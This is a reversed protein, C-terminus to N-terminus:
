SLDQQGPVEEFTVRLKFDCCSPASVGQNCRGSFGVPELYLEVLPMDGRSCSPLCPSNWEEVCSSAHSEQELEVSVSHDFDSISLYGPTGVEVRSSAWNM